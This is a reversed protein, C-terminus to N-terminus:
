PDGRQKKLKTAISEADTKFGAAILKADLELVYYELMRAEREAKSADIRADIALAVAIGAVLASLWPMAKNRSRDSFRWKFIQGRNDGMVPFGARNRRQTAAMDEPTSM